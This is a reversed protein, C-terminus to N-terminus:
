LRSKDKVRSIPFMKIPMLSDDSSKIDPDEAEHISKLYLEDLYM